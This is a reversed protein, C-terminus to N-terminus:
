FTGCCFVFLDSVAWNSSRDCHEKSKTRMNQSGCGAITEYDMRGYVASCLWSEGGDNSYFFIFILIYISDAM